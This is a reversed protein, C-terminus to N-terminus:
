PMGIPNKEYIIITNNAEDQLYKNDYQDVDSYDGITDTDTAGYTVNSTEGRVSTNGAFVGRVNIVLIKKTTPNWDVVKASVSSSALNAGQYVTEGIIFNGTGTGLVIEQAYSTLSEIIDVDEVGTNINENSYRFAECRLEFLYPNRKGVSFFMLEEEVFKIEFVKNLVPVFVLDGERPRSAITSPVYREFSRRSVVFNSTDRIELGFKSFFDGDGEYGEVNAIYMEIVYARSFKSATDEGYIEDMKDYTERPMYYVNHGYMRITEVVLDEVLRQENIVSPSFNNFYPNTPSM